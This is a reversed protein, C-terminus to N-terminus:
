RRAPWHRRLADFRANRFHRGVPNGDGRSVFKEDLDPKSAAGTEVYVEAPLQPDPHDLKRKVLVGLQGFIEIMDSMRALSGTRDVRRLWDARREFHTIRDGINGRKDVEKFSAETLVHNPVRAPWFTPLFMGDGDVGPEYGGGCNVTDAHWPVAMWRTVDGAAVGSLPGNWQTVMEPTLVDGYDAEPLMRPRLRFGDRYMSAHRMPWTVECGPHFPGGMCFHLAARDLLEPRKADPFDELKTNASAPTEAYDAVFDGEVWKRLYEYNTPTLSFFRAPATPFDDDYVDGYLPPWSRSDQATSGPDRFLRFVQRRLEKFELTKEALRSLVEKRSLDYPSGWGHRVFFGYNVWQGMCLREFIPLIDHRFSPQRRREGLADELVDHLTQIAVVDPAYNPPAVVVWASDVRQVVEKKYIVRASVPGDSTDDHWGENNTVSNLDNGPFPTGAKGLGGLVQLRGVSDTRLQGLNVLIAPYLSSPQFPSVFDQSRANEGKVSRECPGIVLGERAAGTVFANRRPSAMGKAEPVDLPMGFQYWAAKKNALTVSWEITANESTLEIVSGDPEYFYIRFQAAQRKLRGQSDKYGTKPAPVAWPLEPGVFCEEPSNGVRAIGIAPHIKAFGRETSM